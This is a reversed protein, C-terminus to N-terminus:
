FDAVINLSYMRVNPYRGNDLGNIIIPNGNNWYNFPGVEPDFGTYKTITLLNQVTFAVRLGRLAIPAVLELKAPFNYTLSVNKVRIYTGNEVNWQTLKDNGNATSTFVRPVTTSPNLLTATLADAVNYSSPRAFNSVSAYYNEYAGKSGPISNLYRQLNVIDNGVSGM